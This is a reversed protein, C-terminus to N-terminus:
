FRVDRVMSRRSRVDYEIWKAVGKRVGLDDLVRGPNMVHCGEYSIGFAPAEADALVLASPLPYLNLASAHDWLVPRTSVPFPSLHGQDLITKVLKRATITSISPTLKSTGPLHSAAVHVAPDLEVLQSDEDPLQLQSPAETEEEIDEESQQKAFMVANRRLRSTIDDRFLVIEEVPGFLSIRAPNSAWVVEGATEGEKRRAEPNAASIIRRIRSTFLDPIGQKPLLTAAGASFSSAWPDNDGPVFVFTSNDLLTPFEALVSALNDFQAKYEVSGGGKTSGAMTAASVFNGMFTITLPWDAMDTTSVYSSLIARIAELTRPSDLNCEGIVIIKTRKPEEEEDTDQHTLLRKQIKRMRSGIAKESGVGLFDIWGFGAGAVHTKDAKLDHTTGLTIERREAPPGAITDAIFRGKIQGGVGGSGGLNSSNSGDEEYLGEVLVIMGPCFWAGDEPVPRAVTMDLVVSSTLDTLALDGAATHVLLGLLLHSTGSRGLLNAVPTIKYSQQITAANSAANLLRPTAFTTSFSPAQFSENRLLRQHILHYRNRFMAIKHHIAPFASPAGNVPELTKKSTSYMLRPQKFASVVKLYARVDQRSLIEEDLDTDDEVQLGSIGLSDERSLGRREDSTGQRSLSAVTSNSRSLKGADLRGELMCSELAKLMNKLKKDSADDMIVGGNDRKWQRAVEDLVREALGDERWGSGCFRGIFQALLALGSSTITLNHKKTLTRFAVPRLTHPPLLIPLVTQANM